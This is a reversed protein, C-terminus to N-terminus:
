LLKLLILVFWKNTFHWLIAPVGCDINKGSWHCGTCMHLVQLTAVVYRRARQFVEEDPWDPHEAQVRAAVVNHWRFFLIGFTLLAPNQNTRPDGLVECLFTYTLSESVNSFEYFFFFILVCWFWEHTWYCLESVYSTVLSVSFDKLIWWAFCTPSLHTSFHFGRQM